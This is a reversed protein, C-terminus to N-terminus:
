QLKQDLVLRLDGVWSSQQIGFNAELKGCNLVSNMPRAAPTPYASTPIRKLILGDYGGAQKFIQAAFDYWSTAPTGCYHYTGWDIEGGVLYRDAILMLIQAISQASTPCGRQDGVIGLESRERGLRLMTKVFNNGTASFVWSTRLIIHRALTSGIIEEGALKSAGYVGLPATDDDERYPDSRDGAFVYDTSVHLMPINISDCAQSLHMVADRNIAYALEQESEARDVQTYAAANIVIDPRYEAFVSSIQTPDTVDLHARSLPILRHPSGAISLEHGVQGGAGTILITGPM